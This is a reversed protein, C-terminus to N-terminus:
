KIFFPLLLYYFKISRKLIFLSISQYSFITRKRIFDILIPDTPQLKNPDTNISLFDYHIIRVFNIWKYQQDNIKLVIDSQKILKAISAENICRNNYFVNDYITEMQKQLQEDNFFYTEIVYCGKLNTGLLELFEISKSLIIIKTIKETCPIIKILFHSPEMLNQVLINEKDANELLHIMTKKFYFIALETKIQVFTNLEFIHYYYAKLHYSIILEILFLVIGLQVYKLKLLQHLINM